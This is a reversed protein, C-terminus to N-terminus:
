PLAELVMGAEHALEQGLKLSAGWRAVFSEDTLPLHVVRSVGAQILKATCLSCPPHTVYATCGQAERGAFLLANEEAHLTLALKVDRDQIRQVTDNVGRPFGNYGTAIIRRQGDVLVCGVRTNPEKSWNAVLSAVETFRRDWKNRDPAERTYQRYEFRAASILGSARLGPTAVVVEGHKAADLKAEFEALEKLNRESM